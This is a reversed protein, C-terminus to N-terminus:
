EPESESLGFLAFLEDEDIGDVADADDMGTLFSDINDSTTDVDVDLIEEAANGADWCKLRFRLIDRLHAAAASKQEATLTKM